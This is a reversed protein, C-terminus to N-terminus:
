QLLYLATKPYAHAGIKPCKKAPRVLGLAVAGISARRRDREADKSGEIAV